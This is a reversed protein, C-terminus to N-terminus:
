AFFGDVDRQKLLEACRKLGRLCHKEVTRLPMGLQEAVEKQTRGRLKHLVIIERTRDPLAAIADALRELTERSILAEAADPSTDLVRSIAPDGVRDLPANREKRLVDLALRRAVQFLFAKSSAIPHLFKAKWVRLYSEQIVDEVDRVAPFQGKLYHRLLPGHPAVEEKFWRESDQRAEAVRAASVPASTSISSDM